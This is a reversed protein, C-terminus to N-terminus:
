SVLHRHQTDNRQNEIVNVTAINFTMLSLTIAGNEQGYRVIQLSAVM